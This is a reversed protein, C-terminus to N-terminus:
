EKKEQMEEALCAAVSSHLDGVHRLWCAKRMAFGFLPPPPHPCPSYTMLGDEAALLASDAEM